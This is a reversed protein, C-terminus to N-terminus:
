TSKRDLTDGMPRPAGAQPMIQARLKRIMKESVALRTTASDLTYHELSLNGSLTQDNHCDTCYEQILGNVARPPLTKAVRRHVEPPTTRSAAPVFFGRDSAHPVSAAGISFSLTATLAASAAVVSKM